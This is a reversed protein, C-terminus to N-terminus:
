FGFGNLCGSEHIKPMCPFISRSFNMHIALSLELVALISVLSLTVGSCVDVVQFRVVLGLCSMGQGHAAKPRLVGAIGQACTRLAM